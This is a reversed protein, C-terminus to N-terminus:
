SNDFNTLWDSIIQKAGLHFRQDEYRTDKLLRNAHHAVSFAAGYDYNLRHEECADRGYVQWSIWDDEGIIVQIQTKIKLIDVKDLLNGILLAAAPKEPELREFIDSLMLSGEGQTLVIVRKLDINPQSLATRYAQIADDIPSGLGGSGSRGTGRKDWRFVAYGAELAVEAYHQYSARTHGGAHHLIFVLPLGNDPIPSEPYDIQGALQVNAGAFIVEHSTNDLQSQDMNHNVVM